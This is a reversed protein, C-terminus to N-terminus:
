GAEAQAEIEAELEAIFRDWEDLKFLLNEVRQCILKKEQEDKVAAAVRYRQQEVQLTNTVVQRDNQAWTLRVEPNSEIETTGLNEELYDLARKSTEEIQM